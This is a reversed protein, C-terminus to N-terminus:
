GVQILLELRPQDYFLAIEPASLYLILYVLFGVCVSSVFLTEAIAEGANRMRVIADHMGGEVLVISFALCVGLVAILAFDEPVLLWGLALTTVIGASRQLVREVMSWFLGILTRQQLSRKSM